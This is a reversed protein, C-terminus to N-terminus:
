TNVDMGKELLLMVMDSNSKKISCFFAKDEQAHIDAGKDILLRVVDVRNYTISAFLATCNDISM